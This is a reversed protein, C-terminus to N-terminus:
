EEFLTLQLPVLVEMFFHAIEHTLHTLFGVFSGSAQLDMRGDMQIRFLKDTTFAVLPEQAAGLQLLVAVDVRTQPRVFAFVTLAVKGIEGIPQLVDPSPVFHVM